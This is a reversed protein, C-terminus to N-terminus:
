QIVSHIHIDFLKIVMAVPNPITLNFDLDHVSEEKNFYFTRRRYYSVTGNDNKTANVKEIVQNFRFPGVENLIPKTSHNTFDEPNTWNFVYVDYNVGPPSKLWANFLQSGPEFTLLKHIGYNYLSNRFGLLLAGLILLLLSSM